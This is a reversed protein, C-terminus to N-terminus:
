PAHRGGALPLRDALRQKARPDGRLTAIIESRLDAIAQEETSAGLGCLGEPAHKLRAMFAWGRNNPDGRHDTVIVQLELSRM